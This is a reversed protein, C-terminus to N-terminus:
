AIGIKKLILYFHSGQRRLSSANKQTKSEVIGTMGAFAPIGNLKEELMGSGM